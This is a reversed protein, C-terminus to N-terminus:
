AAALVEFRAVGAASEYAIKVPLFQAIVEANTTAHESVIVTTFSGAGALAMPLMLQDALHECVAAGSALYALVEAAVKEALAESTVGREGIGTFVETVDAHRVEVMIVNGPGQGKDLDCVETHGAPLRLPGLVSTLAALERQAVTVPVGAVVAKATISLLAGRDELVFARLATCPAIHAVIRGGGAPYFGFRELDIRVDAGMESLLACYTRDLFHAPPAMPNHTGGTVTVTSAKDAYLLALMVAQLVLTVSGASGIDFVYDGGRIAGPSFHLTTSGLHAGEVSAGSIQAAAQVAMLHQRLLGPKKRGARIGTIEFPKGTIMSLTLASRLIQGGGEGKSGDIYVTNM